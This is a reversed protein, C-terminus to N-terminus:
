GGLPHRSVLRFRGAGDEACLALDGLVFPAPPAFHARAAALVPAPDEVAASLTLHFRFEEMVYPYGWRRLMEEQRASLGAARRRATEEPPAPLRFRDLDAVCAAAVRALDSSGRPVLAVFRGLAAAELGEARAPPTRAALDAVAAELAAVEGALRFPPKLTAHFGYRRPTGTWDPHPSPRERGTRADWGLWRAGADGFPGDPLCYVAHRTM